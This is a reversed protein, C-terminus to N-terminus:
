EIGGDFFTDKVKEKKSEVKIEVKKSKVEDFVKLIRKLEFDYIKNEDIDCECGSLVSVSGGDIFEISQISNTVNKVKM